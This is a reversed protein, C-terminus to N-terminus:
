RRELSCWYQEGAGVNTPIPPQSFIAPAQLPNGTPHVVFTKGPVPGSHDPLAPSPIALCVIPSQSLLGTVETGTKDPGRRLPTRNTIAGGDPPPNNDGRKTTPHTTNSEHITTALM